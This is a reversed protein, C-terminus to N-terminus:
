EETEEIDEESEKELLVGKPERALMVEICTALTLDKQEGSAAYEYKGIKYFESEIMGVGYVYYDDYTHPVDGICIYNEYNLTELMCISLRDIMSLYNRLNRFTFGEHIDKNFCSQNKEGVDYDKEMQAISQEDLSVRVINEIDVNGWGICGNRYLAAEKAMELTSYSRVFKGYSHVGDHIASKTYCQVGSYNPEKYGLVGCVSRYEKFYLNYREIPANSKRACHDFEEYQFVITWKYGSIEGNKGKKFLFGYIGEVSNQLMNNIYLPKWEIDEPAIALRKRKEEAKLREQEEKDWQEKTKAYVKRNMNNEKGLVRLILTYCDGHELKKNETKYYLKNMKEYIDNRILVDTAFDRAYTWGEDELCYVKRCKEKNWEDYTTLLPVTIEPRLEDYGEIGLFYEQGTETIMRICGSGGLGSSWEKEVYCLAAFLEETLDSLTFTECNTM